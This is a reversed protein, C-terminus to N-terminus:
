VQPFLEALEDLEREYAALDTLQQKTIRMASLLSLALSDRRKATEIYQNVVPSDSLPFRVHARRPAPAHPDQLFLIRSPSTEMARPDVFKGNDLLQIEYSEFELLANEWQWVTWGTLQESTSAPEPAANGISQRCMRMYLPVSKPCVQKCCHLVRATVSRPPAIRIGNGGPAIKKKCNVREM